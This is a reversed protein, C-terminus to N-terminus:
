PRRRAADRASREGSRRAQRFAYENTNGDKLHAAGRPDMSSASSIVCRLPQGAIMTIPPHARYLTPCLGRVLSAASCTRTLRGRCGHKRQIGACLLFSEPAGAVAVPHM